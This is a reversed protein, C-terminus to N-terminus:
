PRARSLREAESSKAEMLCSPARRRLAACTAAACHPPLFAGRLGNFAFWRRFNAGGETPEATAAAAARRSTAACAERRRSRQM